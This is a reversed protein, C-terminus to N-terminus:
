EEFNCDVRVPLGIKRLRTFFFRELDRPRALSGFDIYLRDKWSLMSANTKCVKSPAPVFEFREVRAAPGPPLSIAGLNSIFGSLLNEGLASFLIRAFFDKIFLPVLRVLLKRSGGVNRAIQRAITKADTEYRLQHHARAVIDPFERQGLRMDQTVLVFLSFNRNTKSPFFKRMNVPVEVALLPRQRRREAPPAALWLEQLADIYVATMLETLTVGFNKAIGLAAALPISGSIVRYCHRGLLAGPIHFAPPLPDPIPYDGRFHRHYADEYEEPDPRDELNYVDPDNGGALTGRLSFYEALLTKTFRLGGTGDTLVHSFECALRRDRARVRFLPRGRRRIDFGQSPSRTDAEPRPRTGSPEFYYWFFGRRLEVCFYPFRKSVRLLAEELSPLHIPEDLDASIRFLSTNVSDSVAPMIVAANDLVYWPGSEDHYGTRSKKRNTRESKEGPGM